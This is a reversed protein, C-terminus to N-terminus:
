FATVSLRMAAQWAEDFERTIRGYLDGFLYEAASQTPNRILKATERLGTIRTSLSAHEDDFRQRHHQLHRRELKRAFPYETHRRQVVM